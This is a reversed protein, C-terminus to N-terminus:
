CSPDAAEAPAPLRLAEVTYGERTLAAKLWDPQGGEGDWTEGTIPHRYRPRMPRVETPQPVGLPPEIGSLEHAEIQWFDILKRVSRLVAEQEATKM